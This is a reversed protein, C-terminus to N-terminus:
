VGDTESLTGLFSSVSENQVFPAGGGILSSPSLSLSLMPQEADSASRDAKSQELRACARRWRWRRAAAIDHRRPRDRVGRAPGAAAPRASILRWRAGPGLAGGRTHSYALAGPRLCCRTARCPLQCVFSDLMFASSCSSRYFIFHFM